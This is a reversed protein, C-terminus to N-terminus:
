EAPSSAELVDLPILLLPTIRCDGTNGFLQSKLIDQRRQATTSKRAIASPFDWTKAAM